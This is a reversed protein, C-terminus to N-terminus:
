ALAAVVTECQRMGYAHAAATADQAVPAAQELLGLAAPLQGSGVALAAKGIANVVQGLPTLFREIATHDGSPQKLRQLQALYGAAVTHLRSLTGVLRQATSAGGSALSGALSTVQTILPGTETRATQCIANAKDVYASKGPGGGGGCGSLGLVGVIASAAFFRVMGLHSRGLITVLATESPREDRGRAPRSSRRAM